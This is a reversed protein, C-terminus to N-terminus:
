LHCTTMKNTKTKYSYVSALMREVHITLTKFFFFIKIIRFTKKDNNKGQCNVTGPVHLKIKSLLYLMVNSKM